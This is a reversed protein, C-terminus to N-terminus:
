TNKLGKAKLRNERMQKKRKEAVDANVNKGRKSFPNKGFRFPFLACDESTCIRVGQRSGGCDLCKIRIAKSPSNTIITAPIVTDEM